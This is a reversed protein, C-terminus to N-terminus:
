TSGRRVDLGANHLALLERNQRRLRNQMQEVFQFIVAAFVVIAAVFLLDLALRVRWSALAIMAYGALEMVVVGLIPLAIAIIKLRRLTMSFDPLVYEARAAITSV